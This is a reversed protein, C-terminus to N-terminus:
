ASDHAVYKGPHVVEVRAEVGKDALETRMEGAVTDYVRRHIFKPAAGSLLGALRSQRHALSIPELVEVVIRSGAIDAMFAGAEAGARDYDQALEDLAAELRALQGHARWLAFFAVGSAILLMICVISLAIM